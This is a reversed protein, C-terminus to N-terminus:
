RLKRNPFERFWSSECYQLESCRSISSGDLLKDDYEILWRLVREVKGETVPEDTIELTISQLSYGPGFAEDLKGPKVEKVSKPDKIDGFTVLTPYQSSPVDHTGRVQPVLKAVELPAKGPFLVQTTAPKREDLLVFLYRGSGLDAVVAEGHLAYKAGRSEATEFEPTPLAFRNPKFPAAQCWVM